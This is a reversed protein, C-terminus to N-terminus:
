QGANLKGLLQRQEDSLFAAHSTQIHEAVPAYLPTAFQVGAQEGSVWKVTASLEELGQPRLVIRDGTALSKVKGSVCCGEPTLDSIVVQEIEGLDGRCNGPLLVPKRSSRRKDSVLLGSMLAILKAEGKEEPRASDTPFPFCRLSQFGQTPGFDCEWRRDPDSALLQDMASRRIPRNLGVSVMRGSVGRITGPPLELDRHVIAIDSGPYLLTTTSYLQCTTRTINILLGTYILDYDVRFRVQLIPSFEDVSAAIATSSSQRM